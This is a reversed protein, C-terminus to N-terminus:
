ADDAGIRHVAEVSDAARDADDHAVAEVELADLDVAADAREAVGLAGDGGARAAAVPAGEDGTLVDLVVAEAIEGLGLDLAHVGVDADLAVAVLEVEVIVPASLKTPTVAAAGSCSSSRPQFRVKVEGCVVSLSMVISDSLPETLAVGVRQREGADAVVAPELLLMVVAVDGLRDLTRSRGASPM